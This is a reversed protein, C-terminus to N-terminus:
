MEPLYALISPEYTFDSPQRGKDSDARDLDGVRM